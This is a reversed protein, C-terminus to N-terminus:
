PADKREKIETTKILDVLVRENGARDRAAYGVTHSLAQSFGSNRQPMSVDTLPTNDGNAQLLM